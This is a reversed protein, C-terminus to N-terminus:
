KIVINCENAQQTRINEVTSWGRFTNLFNIIEKKRAANDMDYFGVKRAHAHWVACPVAGIHQFHRDPSFGRAPDKKRDDNENHIDANDTILRYHVENGVDFLEERVTGM